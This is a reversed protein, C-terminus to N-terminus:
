DEGSYGLDRLRAREQTTLEVTAGPKRAHGIAASDRVLMDLRDTLRAVLDPHDVSIDAQEAPDVELDYLRRQGTRFDVTLKWPGDCISALWTKKAVRLEALLQRPPLSGGRLVPALNAGQIGEEAELGLLALATPYVDLMSVRQGIRRAPIGPARIMLPVQVVERHLHRRHGYLGHEGFEEGHDAALIVMTEDEVRAKGLSRLLAGIHRDTFSIEGDYVDLKTHSNGWPSPTAFGETIGEHFQYNSHPDFYHVWLFFPADSGSARRRELWDVAKRTLEPSSVALHSAQRTKAVLEQDYLDFGQALGYRRDLFLHTVFAATDFGERSLREALTEFAPSLSSEDSWCGHASPYSSTLLSALSPLTWSSSAHADEFLVSQAALADICPSTDRGYGYAGLHDARLTDVTILLLNRPPAAHERGSVDGGGCGALLLAGAVGPPVM